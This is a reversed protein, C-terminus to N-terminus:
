KFRLCPEHDDQNIGVHYKVHDSSPLRMIGSGIL